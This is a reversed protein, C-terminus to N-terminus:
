RNRVVSRAIDVARKARTPDGCLSLVDRMSIELNCDRACVATKQLHAAYAEEDFVDAACLFNPSPKRCYIVNSDALREGMFQEDCWPSISVKALNPLHSIYDDWIREMPECCGWYVKGFLKATHVYYPYVFEGFMAPSVSVTEQSNMNGWMQKLTGESALNKTFGFSGSGVYNAGNNPTLLGEKEMWLLFKETDKQLFAMLEHVKDPSDLMAYFFPIMGMLDVVHKTYVILWRLYQNELVSPLIENARELHERNEEKNKETYAYYSPKLKNLDEDIDVILAEPHFGFESAQIMKPEYDLHRFTISMPIQLEKPIVKDDGIKEARIIEELLLREMQRYFPDECKLTPLVERAFGNFEMIVPNASKDGDNHRYWLNTREEMVPLNALEQYRKGLERLYAKEDM